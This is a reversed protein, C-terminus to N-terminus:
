TCLCIPCLTIKTINIPPNILKLIALGTTANALIVANAQASPSSQAVNVKTGVVNWTFTNNLETIPTKASVTIKKGIIPAKETEVAIVIYTDLNIAATSTYMHYAFHADKSVGNALAYYFRKLLM